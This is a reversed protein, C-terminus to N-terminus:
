RNLKYRIISKHKEYVRKDAIYEEGLVIEGVDRDLNARHGLVERAGLDVSMTKNAINRELRIKVMMNSVPIRNMEQIRIPKGSKTYVTGTLVWKSPEDPSIDIAQLIDIGDDANSEDKWFIYNAVIRPRREVSKIIKELHEM